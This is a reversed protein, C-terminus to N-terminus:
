SGPAWSGSGHDQLDRGIMGVHAGQGGSEEGRNAAWAEATIAYGLVSFGNFSRPGSAAFGTADLVRISARNQPMVFGVVRRLLVTEFAFGLVARVAERAYGRGWARREFAYLVEVDSSRGLRTLGAQGIFRGTAREEVAWVGFGATWAERFGAIRSEAIQAAFPILAEGGVLYRVM